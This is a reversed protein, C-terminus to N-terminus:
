ASRFVFTGAPLGAPIPDAPGLLILGTVGGQNYVVSGDPVKMTGLVIVEVTEPTPIQGVLAVPALSVELELSSTATLGATAVEGGIFEITEINPM